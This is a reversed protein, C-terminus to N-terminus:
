AATPLLRGILATAADPYEAALEEVLDDRDEAVARNVADVYDAHLARLQEVLSPNRISEAVDQGVDEGRAGSGTRISTM